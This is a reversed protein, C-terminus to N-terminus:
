LFEKLYQPIRQELWYKPKLPNNGSIFGVHGGKECVEFTVNQPLPLTPVIDHHSLFPDDSAHIFLCPQKIENLVNAGSVKHYYDDASKFGNLPATVYQDFEWMSRIANLKNKCINTVLKADLKKFTSQKLMGVLFRQYIKSFGTNIRRSCSALHLPACVISAAQYPNQKQEALFRTLVNGGLSYGIAFKPHNPLLSQLYETLFSIDRTDGSHYSRAQRNPRGSCGRFHMLVGLWQNNKIATMIGKAYHSNISGELGHLVVVLPKVEKKSPQETWAIDIFDGDPLEITESMTSLQHNRRFLKAAMTQLHANTLWWAPKFKSELFM